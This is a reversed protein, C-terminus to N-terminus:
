HSMPWEAARKVSANEMPFVLFRGVGIEACHTAIFDFVAQGLAFIGFGVTRAV